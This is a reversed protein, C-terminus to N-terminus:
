NWPESEPDEGLLAAGVRCLERGFLQNGNTDFNWTDDALEAIARWSNGAACWTRVQQARIGDFNDPRLYVCDAFLAARDIRAQKGVAQVHDMFAKFVQAQDADSAITLGGCSCTRLPTDPADPPPELSMEHVGKAIRALEINTVIDTM